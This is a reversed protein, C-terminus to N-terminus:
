TITLPIRRQEGVINLFFFFFVEKKTGKVNVKVIYINKRAGLRCVYDTESYTVMMWPSIMYSKINKSSETLSIQYIISFISWLFWGLLIYKPTMIKISIMLITSNGRSLLIPSNISLYSFLAYSSVKFPMMLSIFYSSTFFFVSLNYTCSSWSLLM